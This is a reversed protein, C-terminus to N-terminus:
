MVMNGFMVCVLGTHEQDIYGETLSKISMEDASCPIMSQNGDDCIM